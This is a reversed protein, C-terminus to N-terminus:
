GAGLLEGAIDSVEPLMLFCEGIGMNEALAAKKRLTQVDDFLVYHSENGTRYTFYRACLEESFYISKGERLRRLEAAALPRRRGDALPLIFDLRMRELDLALREAGYRRLGEQLCNKLTGGSIATNLLVTARPAHAAYREPVFLRRQYQTCLQGMLGTLTGRDAGNHYWDLVVGDYNRRLCERLIDHALVEPAGCERSDCVLMLGGRVPTSEAASLLRQGLRYAAQVPSFTGRPLTEGAGAALYFRM